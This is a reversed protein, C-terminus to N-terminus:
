CAGIGLRVVGAIDCGRVRVVVGVGGVLTLDISHREMGFKRTGISTTNKTGGLCSRFRGRIIIASTPIRSGDTGGGRGVM